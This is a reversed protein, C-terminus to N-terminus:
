DIGIDDVCGFAGRRVLRNDKLNGYIKQLIIDGIHALQKKRNGVRFCIRDQTGFQIQQFLCQFFHLQNVIQFRVPSNEAEVAQKKLDQELEVMIETNLHKMRIHGSFILRQFAQRRHQIIRGFM